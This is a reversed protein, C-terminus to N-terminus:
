AFKNLVFLLVKHLKSIKTLFRQGFDLLYQCFSSEMKSHIQALQSHILIFELLKCPLTGNSFFNVILIQRVSYFLLSCNRVRHLRINIVPNSFFFNPHDPKRSSKM